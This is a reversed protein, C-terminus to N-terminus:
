RAPGTGPGRAVAALLWRHFRKAAEAESLGLSRRMLPGFLADGFLLTAFLVAVFLTDDYEGEPRGARQNARVRGAHIREVLPRLVGPKLARLKRGSLILGALLRAYGREVAMRRFREFFGEIDPVKESPWGAVIEDQFGRLGYLVVAEILGERSGFHHLVAPHSIGVDRAIDQLRIAAPGGAILRREAAALIEQRAEEATRRRRRPRARTTRSAM